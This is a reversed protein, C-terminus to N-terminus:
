SDIWLYIERDLKTCSLEGSLVCECIRDIDKEMIYKRGDIGVREISKFLRELVFRVGEIDCVDLISEDDVRVHYLINGYSNAVEEVETLYIGMGETLVTDVDHICLSRDVVFRDFDRSSGHYLIM